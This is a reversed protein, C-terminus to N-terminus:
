RQYIIFSFDLNKLRFITYMKTFTVQPNRSRFSHLFDVIDDENNWLYLNLPYRQSDVFQPYCLSVHVTGKFKTKRVKDGISLLYNYYNWSWEGGEMVLDLVKVYIYLVSHMCVYICHVTCINELVQVYIYLVSQLCEENGTYLYVTCHAYMRWYRYMCEETGTCLYVTCHAYMRWHRYMCEETGTVACLYATCHLYIRWYRSIFICYVTFINELVQM